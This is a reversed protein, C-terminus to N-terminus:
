METFDESIGAIRVVEGKIDTVALCRIRLCVLFEKQVPNVAIIHGKNDYYVVGLRMTEFLTRHQEQSDRLSAIMVLELLNSVLNLGTAM